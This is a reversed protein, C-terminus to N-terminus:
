CHLVLCSRTLLPRHNYDRHVKWLHSHLSRIQPLRKLGPVVAVMDLREQVLVAITPFTASTMCSLSSISVHYLLSRVRVLQDSGEPRLWLHPDVKVAKGDGSNRGPLEVLPLGAFLGSSMQTLNFICRCCLHNSTLPSHAPLPAIVTRRTRKARLGLHIEHAGRHKQPIRPCGIYPLSVIRYIPRFLWYPVQLTKTISDDFLWYDRTTYDKDLGSM